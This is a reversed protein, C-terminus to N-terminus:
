SLSIQFSNSSFDCQNFLFNKRTYTYPFESHLLKLTMYITHSVDEEYVTCQLFLNATKGDGAPIDGLSLKTLSMGAPSPFVALWKRETYPSINACKRM